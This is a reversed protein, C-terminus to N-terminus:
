RRPLQRAQGSEYAIRCTPCIGDIAMSAACLECRELEELAALLIRYAEAALDFDGREDIAVNGIWGRKSVECWGSGGRLEGCTECDLEVSREGRAIQYSLQSFYLKGRWFGRLCEFCFGEVPMAARCSACTIFEPLFDHGHADLAEFVTQSEIPTGALYGVACPECWGDKGEREACSHGIVAVEQPGSDKGSWWALVLCVSFFAGM